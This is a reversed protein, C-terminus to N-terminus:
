RPRTDRRPEADQALKRLLQGRRGLELALLIRDRPSAPLREPVFPASASRRRAPLSESM